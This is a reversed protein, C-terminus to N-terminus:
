HGMNDIFDDAEDISEQLDKILSDVDGEISSVQDNLSGIARANLNHKLFLVQDRFPKLVPDIKSEAKKMARLLDSYTSKTHELEKESAARLSDSTYSKLESKWESFLAQAVDDVANIREHVEKARSESEDLQSKLQDYKRELDGGDFRTVEKFRQLATKFQAQAEKQSDRASEVRSILLERKHIGLKELANFYASSCSVLSFSILSLLVISIKM